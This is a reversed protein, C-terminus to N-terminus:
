SRERIVNKDYSARYGIDLGMYGTTKHVHYQCYRKGLSRTHACFRHEGHASSIPYMCGDNDVLRLGPLRSREFEDLETEAYTAQKTGHFQPHVRGNDSVTKAKKPKDPSSPRRSPMLSRNRRALLQVANTTIGMEAAIEEYSKGEKWLKGAKTIDLTQIFSGRKKIGDKTPFLDKNRGVMGSVMNRTIGYEKAIDLYSKDNAWMLACAQIIEPTWRWSTRPTM